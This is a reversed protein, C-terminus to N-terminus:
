LCPNGDRHHHHDDDDEIRARKNTKNGQEATADDQSRLKFFSEVEEPLLDIVKVTECEDEELRSSPSPRRRKRRTNPTLEEPRKPAPAPPCETLVPIKHESSTPTRFGDDEDDNEAEPATVAHDDAVLPVVLDPSPDRDRNRFDSSDLLGSQPTTM